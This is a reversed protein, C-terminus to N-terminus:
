APPSTGITLGCRTRKWLLALAVFCLTVGMGLWWESVNEIRNKLDRDFYPAATANVLGLLLLLICAALLLRDLRWARLAATTRALAHIEGTAILLCLYSGSFYGITGYIRLWRYARGETGLFAGYLVLFVAALAGLWPLLLVRLRPVAGLSILWDRCLMWTLWQLVASPLVLARFITNALDYRAARSVSVCGATFPNCAEVLGLRISVSLAILAGLAPLLGAFLPLM